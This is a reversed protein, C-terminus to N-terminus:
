WNSLLVFLGSCTFARSFTIVRFRPVLGAPMDGQPLQGNGNLNPMVANPALPMPQPFLAQPNPLVFPATAIPPQLMYPSVAPLMQAFPPQGIVTAGAPLLAPNMGGVVLGPGLLGGNLGTALAGNLGGVVLLKTFICIFVCSSHM